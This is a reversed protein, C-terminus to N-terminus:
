PKVVIESPLLLHDSGESALVREMTAADYLGVEIIGRGVYTLDSFEMEHRDVIIEGEVWGTTPRVGDAPIGDHQAILRGEENLIHTFVTYSTTLAEENIARWYLTLRVKDKATVETRDLDYGILEAFGGFTVELEHQMPPTVFLHEAAEVEIEVLRLPPNMGIALELIAPGEKAEPSLVLDRRDVVMEGRSWLDTPYRGDVPVGSAAAVVKGEQVLRLEPVYSPLGDRTARWCLAVRLGEGARVERRDLAFGELVLGDALPANLTEFGPCPESAFARARTLHVMGLTFRKGAPAGAKDLLDLGALNSEDYVGVALTYSLPATGMPLPIVYYNVTETGAPWEDTPRSNRDLLPVDASAIQRGRGDRLAVTAKYRRETEQVLRWRLALCVAEDAPVATEHFAATLGLLGYNAFVGQLKPLSFAQKLEYTKLSFGQFEREDVLRGGLELLFPILGREDTGGQYWKALFVRRKGEACKRLRASIQPENGDIELYRVPASGHYYYSFAYDEYDFVILDDGNATGKLYEALSRVNDKHYQTEFYLIHLGTAFTLLLMLGLALGILRERGKYGTVIGIARGILVFLPVSLMIVYRPHIGPRVQSILFVLSLPVITHLLLMGNQGRKRDTRWLILLAVALATASLSSLTTFSPHSGIVAITGANYFHWVQNAFSILSPPEARETAHTAMRRIAVQAWPLYSLAVLVQAGLWRCLDHLRRQRWLLLTALASLYAIILFAFYHTYIGSAEFLALLAWKRWSHNEGASTLRHFLYILAACELTLLSYMRTEQSYTIHLPAFAVIAMALLATRADYLRRALLYGAAVLVVGFVLSLFRVSFESFGALATWCHLLLYYLPPHTRGPSAILPLAESISQKALHISWGEDYWISQNDIRYLRLAFAVLILLYPLIHTKAKEKLASLLKM